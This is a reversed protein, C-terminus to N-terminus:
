LTYDGVKDEDIDDSIKKRGLDTKLNNRNYKYKPSAFSNDEIISSSHVGFVGGILEYLLDNTWYEDLHSKLVSTIKPYLGQYEDSLYIILPIRVNVFPINEATRKRYPNAGHDSFFIMAQMNLNEKGYTYVNRLFEDVYAMLDEYNAVLDFVGPKGFRTFEPPFRHLTLEHNGMVHLVIFNNENPNVKNLCPLLDEDYLVKSNDPYDDEIWHAYDATKAVIAIQSENSQRIGQNSFWYTKYGAKKAIDIITLTDKFEINNYQNKQTLARELSPLTVGFSSYAHNFRLFHAADGNVMQRLWPTTDNQNYGYASMFNRGSSEGIVLIITSPKNFTKEPLAMQMNAFNKDHNIKFEQASKLYKHSEAFAHVVGTGKFASPLYAIMALLIVVLGMQQKKSMNKNRSPLTDEHIGYLYSLGGIFILSLALLIGVGIIGFNQVLFEKAEGPNTQLVALAGTQSLSSGYYLYYWIEFLPILFLLFQLLGGIVALFASGKIRHYFYHLLLGVPLLYAGFIIDHYNNINVASVKYTLYDTVNFTAVWLLGLVIHVLLQVKPLASSIWINIAVVSALAAPFFRRMHLLIRYSEAGKSTLLFVGILLMYIALFEILYKVYIRFNTKLSNM